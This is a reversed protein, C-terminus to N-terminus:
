PADACYSILQGNPDFLAADDRADDDWIPNGVHAFDRTEGAQLLGFLGRHQQGGNLSCLRWGALDIAANSINQLTAVEPFHQKSIDVIKIPTNPAQAATPTVVCNPIPTPSVSPTDTAEITAEPTLTPTEPPPTPTIAETPPPTQGADPSPTGDYLAAILPMYALPTLSATQQGMGRTIGWLPNLLFLGAGLLIAVGFHKM